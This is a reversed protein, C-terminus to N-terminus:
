LVDAADLKFLRKLEVWLAKEKDVSPVTSSFKEKVLNWLAVLDEKDFGKLMDKSSQYAKTIGGVKIIKWYTRSGETHIEDEESMEKLDNSLIEKTSESGSVEVAKLKKFSEQLLTEDVVRKKKPEEVDKDPLVFNSGEQIGEEDKEVDVLTIDKDADIAEIKGMVMLLDLEMKRMLNTGHFGDIGYDLLQNQIWLVQTCCRAAAVYEAETSSTAVITQKQCQWSILTCGLFQCAGTTSKRDLSARAYGSDFYAVLNFSSDNPYWLGLHPKGKLYRYIHVDVDEVNLDKLLPKETKIPTSASKVDIFGFKWARPDQHLGYLAKVVKYVKDPDDPDKFKPPQCVYVEEEITEYLFASKVDMQYVMFGMFSAYALFLQIAKIRAVSSFVEDYDIGEEQTHGQAVLRAKNKILIERKDKKNRFVWKLGIASKGKPLDALVWVKQLKFQLLEDQMAEILSPDKLTPYVKKPEEQSLFCAFMCTHFDEDNIQHLGGQEKVMKTMSRTQPASHLDGIIQNGPHDKHSRTTPISSVHINTVLNSLDVEAGVDEEDDSYVIDELEPMDPDDPYKSPGCIFIE